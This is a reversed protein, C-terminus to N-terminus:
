LGSFGGSWRPSEQGNGSHAHVRPSGSARGQGIVGVPSEDRRGEPYTTLRPSARLYPDNQDDAPELNPPLYPSITRPSQTPSPYKHSYAHVRSLLDAATKPWSSQEQPPQATQIPSPLLQPPLSVVVPQVTPNVRSINAPCTFLYLQKRTARGSFTIEEDDPHSNGNRTEDGVIDDVMKGPSFAMGLEEEESEQPESFSRAGDVDDLSMRGLAEVTVGTSSFQEGVGVGGVEKV